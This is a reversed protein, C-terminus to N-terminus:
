EDMVLATYDWLNVADNFLLSLFNVTKLGYIKVLGRNVDCM